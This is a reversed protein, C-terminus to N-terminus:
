LFPLLPVAVRERVYGYLGTLGELLPIGEAGTGHGFAVGFTFKADYDMEAGLMPVWSTVVGGDEIPGLQGIAIEMFPGRTRFHRADMGQTVSSTLLLDRHKDIRDLEHIVWLPHMRAKEGETYPQVGEIVDIAEQTADALKRKVARTFMAPGQGTQGKSDTDGFIPFESQEIARQPLEAGQNSDAYGKANLALAVHDLCSRLNHAADGAILSWETPIPKAVHLRLVTRQMNIIFHGQPDIYPEQEERVSHPSEGMWAGMSRQLTKIHHLARELKHSFGLSSLPELATPEREQAKERTRQQARQRQGARSAREAKRQKSVM